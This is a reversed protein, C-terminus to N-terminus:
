FAGTEDPLDTHDGHMAQGFRCVSVALNPTNTCISEAVTSFWFNVGITQADSEVSHWWGDPIYVCDGASLVVARVGPVSADLVRTGHNPSDCALSRPHLADSDVPPLMYVCKRGHVLGLLGHNADYHAAAISREVCMWLNQELVKVPAACRALARVCDNPLACDDRLASLSTVEADAHWIPAQALYYHPAPGRQEVNWEGVSQGREFVKLFEDFRVELRENAYIDGYFTDTESISMNVLTGRREKSLADLVATASGDVFWHSIAKWDSVGGRICVPESRGLYSEFNTFSNLNDVSMVLSLSARKKKTKHAFARAFGRKQL